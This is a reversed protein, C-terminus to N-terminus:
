GLFGDVIGLDCAEKADLWSDTNGTLMEITGIDKDCNSALIFNIDNKLRSIHEAAVRIDVERGSIGYCSPMHLMVEAHRTMFRRGKTGASLVVAAMSAACGVCITSVPVKQEVKRMMDIIALGATVSGGPSSVYIEIEQPAQNALFILQANINAAMEDTIEGTLMIIGDKLMASFIDGTYNSHSVSPIINM